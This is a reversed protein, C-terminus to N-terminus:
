KGESASDQSALFDVYVTADSEVAQPTLPGSLESVRNMFREDGMKFLFDLMPPKGTRYFLNPVLVSYGAEALRSAM